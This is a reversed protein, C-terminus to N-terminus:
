IRSRTVLVEVPAVIVKCCLSMGRDNKVVWILFPRTFPRNWEQEVFQFAPLVYLDCQMHSTICPFLPLWSLQTISTTHLLSFGSWSFTTLLKTFPQSTKSLKVVLLSFKFALLVMPFLFPISREGSRNKGHPSTPVLCGVASTSCFM